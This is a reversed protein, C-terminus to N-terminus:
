LSEGIMIKLYTVIMEKFQEDTDVERGNWFIRGDKEIKIVEKDQAKIKFAPSIDVAKLYIGNYSNITEM